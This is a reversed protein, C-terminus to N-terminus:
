CQLIGVQGLVSSDELDSNKIPDVCFQVCEYGGLRIKKRKKKKKNEKKGEPGALPTIVM